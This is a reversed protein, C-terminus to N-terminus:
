QQLADALGSTRQVTRSLALAITEEQAMLTL